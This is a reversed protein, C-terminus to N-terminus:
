TCPLDVTPGDPRDKVLRVEKAACREGSHSVIEVRLGVTEADLLTVTGTLSRVDGGAWVRVPKAKDGDLQVLFFAGEGTAQVSYSDGPKKLMLRTIGLLEGVKRLTGAVASEESWLVYTWGNATGRNRDTGTALRGSGAAGAAGGVQGCDASTAALEDYDLATRAFWRGVTPISPIPECGPAHYQPDMKIRAAEAGEAVGGFGTAQVVALALLAM